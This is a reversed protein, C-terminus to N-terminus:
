RQPSPYAAASSPIKVANDFSGNAFNKAYAFILRTCCRNMYFVSWQRTCWRNLLKYEVFM